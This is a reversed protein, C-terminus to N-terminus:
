SSAFASRRTASGIDAPTDDNFRAVATAAVRYASLSVGDHAARDQASTGDSLRVREGIRHRRDGCVRRRAGHFARQGSGSEDSALRFSLSGPTMRRRSQM